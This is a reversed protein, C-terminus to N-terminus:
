LNMVFDSMGGMTMDVVKLLNRKEEPLRDIIGFVKTNLIDARIPTLGREIMRDIAAELLLAGIGRGRYEHLVYTAVITPEGSMQEGKPAITSIGVIEDGIKAIVAEDVCSIRDGALLTGLAVSPKSQHLSSIWGRVMALLVVEIGIEKEEM